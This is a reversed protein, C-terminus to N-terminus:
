DEKKAYVPRRTFFDSIGNPLQRLGLISMLLASIGGGIMQITSYAGDKKIKLINDKSEKITDFAQTLIVKLEGVTIDGSELRAKAEDITKYVEYIKEEEKQVKKLDEGGLCGALSGVMFLCLVLYRM